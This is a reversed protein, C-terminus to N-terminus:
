RTAFYYRTLHFFVPAAFCLSDIRDMIGGHGPILAGYDKVGADRKVASMVIGGFFGMLVIVLSMLATQWLRFPTMWWLLTGVGAASLTGGIFGEWTKNPSIHPAIPRRGLLKGWIYQFVDSLEVVIALFFLLKVNQGKLAPINLDLLAPAHSVCYVCIMLAFYIKAVREMYNKYDGTLTSRICVWLFAYVPIFIAFLGYWRIYVLAYQVPTAIFFVSFLTHHDARRTPSLTIMERLALFSILAFLVASAGVGLVGAAAFVIVMLWWAGTRALINQATARAADTPALRRLVLGAITGAMLLAVIAELLAAMKPDNFMTM